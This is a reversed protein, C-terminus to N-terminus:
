HKRVEHLILAAITTRLKEADAPHTSGDPRPLSRQHEELLEHGVRVMADIWARPIQLDIRTGLEAVEKDVAIVAISMMVLQLFGLSGMGCDVVEDFLKDAQDAYRTRLSRQDQFQIERLRLAHLNKHCDELAQVKDSKRQVKLDRMAEEVISICEDILGADTCRCGYLLIKRELERRMDAWEDDDGDHDDVPPPPLQGREDYTARSSV